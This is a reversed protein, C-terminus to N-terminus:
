GGALVYRQGAVFPHEITALSKISKSPNALSFTKTTHATKMNCCSSYDLLLPPMSCAPAYSTAHQSSSSAIGPRRRHLHTCLQLTPGGNRCIVSDHHQLDLGAVSHAPCSINCLWSGRICAQCCQELLCRRQLGYSVSSRCWCTGFM